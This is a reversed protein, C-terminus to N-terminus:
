QGGARAVSRGGTHQVAEHLHTPVLWGRGLPERDEHWTWGEPASGQSNRPHPPWNPDQLDIRAQDRFAAMNHRRNPGFNSIQM